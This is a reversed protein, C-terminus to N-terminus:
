SVQDHDKDYAQLKYGDELKKLLLELRLRETWPLRLYGTDKERVMKVRGLLSSLELKVVWTQKKYLSTCVTEQELWSASFTHADLWVDSSARCLWFGGHEALVALYAGRHHHLRIYVGAFQFDIRVQPVAQNPGHSFVTVAAITM